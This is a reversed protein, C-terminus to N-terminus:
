ILELKKVLSRLRKPAKPIYKWIFGIALTVGIADFFVDRMSGERTPVFVQHIEDTIGYILSYLWALYLNQWVPGSRTNKLTRYLLLALIGYEVVHLSKFVVFQVAYVESVQVKTRSSLLFILTMWFITPGWYWLFKKYM